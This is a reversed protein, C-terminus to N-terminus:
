GAGFSAALCISPRIANQFPTFTLTYGARIIRDWDELDRGHDTYPCMRLDPATM